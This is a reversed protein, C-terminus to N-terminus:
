CIELTTTWHVFARPNYWGSIKSIIIGLPRCWSRAACFVSINLGNRFLHELRGM